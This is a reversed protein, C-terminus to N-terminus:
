RATGGEAPQPGAGARASAGAAGGAGPAGANGAESAPLACALMWRDLECRALSRRPPECRDTLDPHDDLPCLLGASACGITGDRTALVGDDVTLAATQLEPCGLLNELPSGVVPELPDVVKDHCSSAGLLVLTLSLSSTRSM